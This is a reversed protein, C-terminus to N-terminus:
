IPSSLGSCGCIPTEAQNTFWVVVLEDQQALGPNGRKQKVFLNKLTRSMWKVVGQSSPNHAIGFSHHVGWAQLLMAISNSQYAPGNDTHIEQPQGM